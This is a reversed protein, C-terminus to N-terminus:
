FFSALDVIFMAFVRCIANKVKQWGIEAIQMANCTYFVFDKFKGKRLYVGITLLLNVM